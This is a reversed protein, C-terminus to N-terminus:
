ASRKKKNEIIKDIKDGFQERAIKQLVNYCKNLEAEAKDLFLWGFEDNSCDAIVQMLYDSRRVWYEVKEDLSLDKYNKM